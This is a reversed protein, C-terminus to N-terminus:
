FFPELEPGADAVRADITKRALYLSREWAATDGRRDAAPAVLVQRIAPCTARAGAGLVDLRLPVERWGLVRLGDGELVDEIIATVRALATAERPLFCMGVAFPEGPELPLGRKLAELALLTVAHSREGSARAVFGVGCADQERWPDLDPARTHRWRTNGGPM